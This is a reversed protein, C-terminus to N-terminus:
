RNVESLECRALLALGRAFYAVRDVEEGSGSRGDGSGGDGYSGSAEDDDELLPRYAELAHLLFSLFWEPGSSSFIGRHFVVTNFGPKGYLHQCSGAFRLIPVVAILLCGSPLLYM